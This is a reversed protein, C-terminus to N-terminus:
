SLHYTKITMMMIMMIIGLFLSERCSDGNGGDDDDDCDDGDVHGPSPFDKQETLTCKSWQRRMILIIILIILFMTPILIMILIIIILLPIGNDDDDDDNLDNDIHCNPAPYVKQETLACKSWRRSRERATSYSPLKRRDSTDLFSSLCLRSEGLFWRGQGERRM